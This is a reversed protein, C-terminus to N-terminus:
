LTFVGGLQLTLPHTSPTYHQIRERWTGCGIALGLGFAGARHTRAKDLRWLLDFILPLHELAIGIGTDQISVAIADEKQKLSVTITRDAPTYNLANELLNAFLRQISVGWDLPM